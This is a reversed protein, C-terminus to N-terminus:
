WVGFITNVPLESCLWLAVMRVVTSKDATKILHNQIGTSFTFVFHRIIQFFIACYYKICWLLAQKQRAANQLFFCYQVCKFVWENGYKIRWSKTLGLLSFFRTQWKVPLGSDSCFAFFHGCGTRNAMSCLTLRSSPEHCCSKAPKWVSTLSSAQSDWMQQVCDATCFLSWFLWCVTGAQLLLLFPLSLPLSFSPSLSHALSLSLVFSVDDWGVSVSQARCKCM